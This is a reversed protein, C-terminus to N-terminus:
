GSPSISPPLYDTLYTLPELGHREAIHVVALAQEFAALAAHQEPSAPAATAMAQHAMYLDTIRAVWADRWPNLSPHADGARIVYRRVPAWRWLADVGDLRAPSQSVVFFDSSVVLRRGDPPRGPARDATTIAFQADLVQTSRTAGMRFVVPDAAIFVWPWWTHGTNGEVQEDVRWTTEDAPVHTAASHRTWDGAGPTKEPSRGFLMRSLVPVQEVLEEIRAEASALQEEAQEARREALEAQEEAREARERWSTM